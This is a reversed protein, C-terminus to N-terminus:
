IRLIRKRSFFAPDYYCYAYACLVTKTAKPHCIVNLLSTGSNAPVYNEDDNDDEFAFDTGNAEAIKESIFWAKKVSQYASGENGYVSFLRFLCLLFCLFLLRKMITKEQMGFM